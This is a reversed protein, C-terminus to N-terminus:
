KNLDFLVIKERVLLPLKSIGTIKIEEESIEYIKMIKDIKTEEELKDSFEKEVFGPIKHECDGVIVAYVENEGSKVGFKLADKIQRTAAIYLMIEMTLTKAINRGEKWSKIAKRVAFEVTDRDIVLDANIIAIECDMSKLTKFLNEPSDIKLIGTLIKFNM